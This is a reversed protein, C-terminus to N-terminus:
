MKELKASFPEQLNKCILIVATQKALFLIKRTFGHNVRIKSQQTHFKM